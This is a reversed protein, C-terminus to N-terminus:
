ELRLTSLMARTNGSRGAAWLSPRDFCNLWTVCNSSVQLPPAQLTSGSLGVMASALQVAFQFKRNLSPRLPLRWLVNFKLTSRRPEEHTIACCRYARSPRAM